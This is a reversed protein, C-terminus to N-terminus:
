SPPDPRPKPKKAAPPAEPRKKPNAGFFRPIDKEFVRPIDKQFTRRVDDLFDARAPTALASVTLVAVVPAARM